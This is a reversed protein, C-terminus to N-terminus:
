KIRRILIIQIYALSCDVMVEKGYDKFKCLGVYMFISFPSQIHEILM